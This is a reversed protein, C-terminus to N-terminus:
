LQPLKQGRYVMAVQFYNNVAGLVEFQAYYAKTFDDFAKFEHLPVNFEDFLLVDGEKLYPFISTLVYLTASFIDADLHILKPKHADLSKLYVPLTEQFLGRHLTVRSDEVGLKDANAAMDGASYIGWGEPLGTFTDFGHLQTDQHKLHAVWWRLSDGRSVGFELYTLPKDAWGQKEVLYKYLELRRSYVRKFTFFDNIGLAPNNRIYKSGQAMYALWKLPTRLPYFILELRLFLFIGKAAHPLKKLVNM